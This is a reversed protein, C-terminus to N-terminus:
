WYCGGEVNEAYAPVFKTPIEDVWLDPHTSFSDLLRDKPHLARDHPNNRWRGGMIGFYLQMAGGCYFVHHGRKHLQDAIPVGMSGCSLMIVSGTPAREDIAQVAWDITEFASAHPGCNNFCYPFGFGSVRDARFQPRLQQLRGSKFQDVMIKAFPSVLVVSQQQSIDEIWSYTFTEFVPADPHRIPRFLSDLAEFGNGFMEDADVLSRYLYVLSTADSCSDLYLAWYDRVSQTVHTSWAIENLPTDQLSFANDYFGITNWQHRLKSRAFQSNQDAVSGRNLLLLMASETVGVRICKQVTKM